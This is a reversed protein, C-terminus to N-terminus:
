KELKRRAREVLDREEETRAPLNILKKFITSARETEKLNEHCIGLDYLLKIDNPRLNLAEQFYKSAKRYERLGFYAIGLNQYIAFAPESLYNERLFCSVAKQLQFTKLYALGMYEYAGVEMEDEKLDKYKELYKLALSYEGKRYYAVGLQYYSDPFSPNIDIVKKLEKIAEDYRKLRLLTIGLNYLGLPSSPKEKLTIQFLNLAKELHEEGDWLLHVSGLAYNTYFPTCNGKGKTEELEKILKTLFEKDGKQEKVYGMNFDAPRFFKYGYGEITSRFKPVNKLFLMSVEDFAVLIWDPDDDLRKVFMMYGQVRNDKILVMDISYEELLRRWAKENNLGQRCSWFFDKDYITPTRGDIFVKLQPYLHWILYGGYDYHNFINGKLGHDEIFKVTGSPYSGETLGFGIRRYEGTFWLVYFSLFVIIFAPVWKVYQIMKKKYAVSSFSQAINFAVIPCMVVGWAGIFRHYSFAMYSFLAFILLHEIKKLNERRLFFSFIGIIFLGKFWITFDPLFILLSKPSFPIWEVIYRKAEQEAATAFPVTFTKYGYPSAFSVLIVLLTSIMLARLKRDKFVPKLDNRQSWALSVFYSFTYVFMLGIGLLFSGHINVWLIQLIPLLYLYSKGKIFYLNLMYFYLCLFLLFVVQPRVMFRQRIVNLGVILFFAVIWEKGGSLLNINKYLFFVLIAIILAKFVILGSLGLTSYIPYVIVQFLWEFDTWEHGAFTYSFFDKHPIAHNNLIWEGTKLHWWIDFCCIRQVGYLLVLIGTIVWILYKLRSDVDNASIGMM